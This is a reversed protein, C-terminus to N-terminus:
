YKKLYSKAYKRLKKSAADTAVMEVTSRYESIGSAALMKTMFAMADIFQRGSENLKFDNKVKLQIINLLYRNTYLQEYNVRKAGVAQLQRDDSRLMNAYQNIKTSESSDFQATDSIIANWKKYKNFNNLSNKAHKRIGKHGAESMVKNLTNKYKDQGSFSLAKALWASYDAKQKDTTTYSELLRQEIVDFVRTDSIGAWELERCATKQASMSKQSFVKIYRQIIKEDVAASVSQTMLMAVAFLYFLFVRKTYGFKIM